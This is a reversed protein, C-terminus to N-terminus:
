PHGLRMMMPLVLMRDTPSAALLNSTAPVTAGDVLAVSFSYAAGNTLGTLTYSRTGFPIGGVPSAQDGAPGQYSIQWTSTAPADGSLTWWLRVSGNAPVGNLSVRVEDTGDWGALRAMMWWFAKGKQVCNFGHSHACGPLDVCEDPHQSCWTACWACDDSTDPYYVGSPDYSEIDAFDFLVMGQSIAYDRVIKNNRKLTEQNGSDTHGTFLVFRMSPYDSELQDMVGLYENVTAESNSSQQGCWTWMSFGFLGTSAVSRTHDIGDPESWYLEPTIYTNGAYNNGDYFRLVGIEAPLTPPTGGNKVAFGYRPDQEELWGLGSIIQSGHSTHAYHVTLKKAQELWYDPIKSIDTTTHDIIVAGAQAGASQASAPSIEWGGSVALLIIAVAIIILRNTKM